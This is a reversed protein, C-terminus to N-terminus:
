CKQKYISFSPTSIYHNPKNFLNVSEMEISRSVHTAYHEPNPRLEVANLYASLLPPYGLEWIELLFNEIALCMCISLPMVSLQIVTQFNGLLEMIVSSATLYEVMDSYLYFLMKLRPAFENETMRIVGIHKSVHDDSDRCTAVLTM